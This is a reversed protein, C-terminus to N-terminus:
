NCETVQPPQHRPAERYSALCPVHHLLLGLVDPGRLCLRGERVRDLQCGQDFGPHNRARRVPRRHLRPDYGQLALHLQERHVPDGNLAQPLIILVMMKWYGLGLAAAGEYQGKPVAQLGGRVVEAMYAATFLTVGVLARLLKNFTVGEPLFLPLMVSAMFLVSILPVGRVVEIFVVCASKVIPMKSRRGLALAIGIPFSAVIGTVSVVLTVTLGGWKATEVETLGFMGGSLLIFALVPYLTLLFLVLWRKGQFRFATAAIGFFGILFTVIPRWQEGEPYFGFLIQNFRVKIFTLLGRGDGGGRGGRM